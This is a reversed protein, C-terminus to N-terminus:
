TLRHAPDPGLKGGIRLRLHAGLGGDQCISVAIPDYLPGLAVNASAPRAASSSSTSRGARRRRHQRRYRCDHDARTRRCHSTSRRKSAASTDHASPMACGLFEDRLSRALERAEALDNDTAVVVHAGISPVDGYSLRSGALTLVGPERELAYMSSSGRWRSACRHYM